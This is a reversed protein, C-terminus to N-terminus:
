QFVNFLIFRNDIGVPQTQHDEFNKNRNKKPYHFFCSFAQELSACLDGECVEGVELAVETPPLGDLKDAGDARAAKGNLPQGKQRGAKDGAEKKGNDDDEEGEKGKGREKRKERGKGEKRVRDEKKEKEEEDEEEEEEEDEEASDESSDEKQICTLLM